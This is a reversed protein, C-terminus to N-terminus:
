RRQKEFFRPMIFQDIIAQLAEDTQGGLKLLSKYREFLSEILENNGRIDSDFFQTLGKLNIQDIKLELEEIFNYKPSYLIQNYHMRVDRPPEQVEQYDTPNYTSQSVDYSSSINYNTGLDTDSRERYKREVKIHNVVDDTQHQANLLFKILLFALVVFVIGLVILVSADTLQM